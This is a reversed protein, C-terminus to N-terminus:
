VSSQIIYEHWITGDHYTTQIEDIQVEFRSGYLKDILDLDFVTTDGSDKCPGETPNCYFHRGPESLGSTKEGWVRSYFMSNHSMLPRITSLYGNIEDITNAYLSLNDVIFDFQEQLLHLQDFEMVRCEINQEEETKNIRHKLRSIATPSGDIALVDYGCHALMISNAGAGCGLDLCKPKIDRARIISSLKSKAKRVLDIEPYTGWHKSKHQQEWHM